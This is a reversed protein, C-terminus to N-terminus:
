QAAGIARNAELAVLEELGVLDGTESPVLNGGIGAAVAGAELFSRVNDANVGGTVMIQLNNLPAM